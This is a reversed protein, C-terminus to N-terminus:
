RRSRRKQRHHYAAGRTGLSVPNSYPQCIRCRAANHNPTRLAHTYRAMVKGIPIMAKSFAKAYANVFEGIAGFARGLAAFQDATPVPDPKWRMADRSTRWDDIAYDIQDLVGDANSM